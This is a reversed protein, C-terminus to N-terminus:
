FCIKNEFIWNKIREINKLGIEVQEIQSNFDKTRDVQESSVRISFYKNHKKLVAWDPLHKQIESEIKESFGKFTADVNGQQLKHCFVINELKEVNFLPWDSGHPVIRPKKMQLDTHNKTVYEYYSHWFEQVKPSNIPTYGRRM